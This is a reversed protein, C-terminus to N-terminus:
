GPLTNPDTVQILRPPPGGGFFIEIPAYATALQLLAAGARHPIQDTRVGHVKTAFASRSRHWLVNGQLLTSRLLDHGGFAQLDAIQLEALVCVGIRPGFRAIDAWGDPNDGFALHAAHIVIVTAPTDPSPVFPVASESRAIRERTEALLDNVARRDTITGPLDALGAEIACPNIRHIITGPLEASIAHTLTRISGTKGTGTGGVIVGNNVHRGTVLPWRAPALPDDALHGITLQVGGPPAPLLAPATM